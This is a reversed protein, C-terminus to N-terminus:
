RAREPLRISRQPDHMARLQKKDVKAGNAPLADEFQYWRPRKYPALRELCWADLSDVDVGGPAVVVAKVGEGWREDPVGIVACDLVAPHLRLVQEVEVSYVNEGGTKVMDKLRDLMYLYGDEDMRMMDGTHLWGGRLTEATAEPMGWYESMVSAGRLVLEGAEGAEVPRDDPDVVAARFGILPRGVTGPRAIEDARTSCTAFNGAETSGYIGVFGAHPVLEGMELHEAPTHKGAQGTLVRLSKAHTASMSHRVANVVAGGVFTGITVSHRAIMDWSDALSGRAGFVIRGGVSLVSMATGLGAVHFFPGAGIHVDADTLGLGTVLNMSSAVWARQSLVCGKSRGTTGSTYLQIFPGEPEPRATGAPAPEISRLRDRHDADLAVAPLSFAGAAAALRHNDPDVVVLRTGSDELQYRVSGADLRTNLLVVVAGCMAAGYLVSLYEPGNNALIAIRDGRRVGAEHLLRHWRRADDALQGYSLSWDDGAFAVRQTLARSAGATVLDAVLLGASM